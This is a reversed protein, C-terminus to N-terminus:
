LGVERMIYRADDDSLDGPDSGPWELIEANKDYGRLLWYLKDAQQQAQDEPDYLIFIDDFNRALLLVQQMTFDIGYTPLAGPGLRYGDFIGEVVIGRKGAVAKDFGYLTHKLNMVSEEIKCGRYPKPWTGTIDRCQFSVLKKYMYIPALIAFKYYGITGTSLLDWEAALYDPDFNRSILYQRAKETLIDTDPPFIVEKSYIQKKYKPRYIDGTSYKKIIEKAEDITTKALISIVKPLWTNGCRHCSYYSKQINFGGHNSHDGCLICQIGIFDKGVNKTGPMFYPIDYDQCFKQANFLM